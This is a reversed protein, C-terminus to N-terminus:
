LINTYFTAWSVQIQRVLWIVPDCLYGSPWYSAGPHPLELTVPEAEQVLAAKPDVQATMLEGTPTKKIAWSPIEM